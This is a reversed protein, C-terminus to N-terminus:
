VNQLLLFLPFIWHPCKSQYSDVLPLEEWYTGTVVTQQLFSKEIPELSLQRHSAVRGLTKWTVVTQVLCSNGIPKPALLRRSFVGGLPNWHCSDVLPLEEQHTETGVIQSLFSKGIPELSLQRHSAVRGLPKLHCSDVRPLGEQHTEHCNDIPHFEEWHTGTVVTYSLFSKGITELLVPRCSSVRRLLVCLAFFFFLFSISTPKVGGQAVLFINVKFSVRDIKGNLSEKRSIGGRTTVQWMGRLQETPALVPNM